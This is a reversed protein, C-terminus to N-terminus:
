SEPTINRGTEADIWERIYPPCNELKINEAEWRALYKVADRNVLTVEQLDLTIKQESAELSLLRQLEAVDQIEIRGSLSLTVGDNSSRQIRLM